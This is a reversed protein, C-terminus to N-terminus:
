KLTEAKGIRVRRHALTGTVSLAVGALLVYWGWKNKITHTLAAALGKFPIFSFTTDVKFVAAAFILAVLILCVLASTRALVRQKLAVGIIGIVSILVVTMGYPKSLGFMDYNFLHFPRVLPCYCGVIILIFGILAATSSIRM